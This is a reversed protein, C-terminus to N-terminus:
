EHYKDPQELDANENVNWERLMCVKKDLNEKLVLM